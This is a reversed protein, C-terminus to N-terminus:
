APDYDFFKDEEEDSMGVGSLQGNESSNLTSHQGRERKIKKSITRSIKKSQHMGNM